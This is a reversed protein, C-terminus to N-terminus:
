ELETKEPKKALAVHHTVQRLDFNKGQVNGRVIFTERIYHTDDSARIVEFTWPDLANTDETLPRDIHHALKFSRTDEDTKGYKEVTVSDYSQLIEDMVADPIADIGLYENSM